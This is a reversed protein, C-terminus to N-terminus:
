TAQKPVLGDQGSLITAYVHPGLVLWAVAALLLMSLVASFKGSSRAQGERGFFIAISSIALFKDTFLICHGEM